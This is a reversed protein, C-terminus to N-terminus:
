HDIKSFLKKNKFFSRTLEPEYSNQIKNNLRKFIPSLTLILSSLVVIKVPTFVSERLIRPILYFILGYKRLNSPSNGNHVFAYYMIFIKPGLLFSWLVIMSIVLISAYLLIVTKEWKYFIAFFVLFQNVLYYIALFTLIIIYSSLSFWKKIEAVNNHNNFWDIVYYYTVALFGALFIQQVLLHIWIKKYNRCIREIGGILGAFLAIIPEQIAYWIYWTAGGSLLFGLSDSIWGIFFGYIPGFFWGILFVPTWAFSLRTMFVPIPISLKGIILRLAVFVALFVIYNASAFPSVPYTPFLFIMLQKWSKKLKNQNQAFTKVQNLQKKAIQNKSYFNNTAFLRM